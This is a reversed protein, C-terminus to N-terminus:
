LEKVKRLFKVFRYKRIYILHCIIKFKISKKCVFKNKKWNPFRKKITDVIEDVKEELVDMYRLSASYLLHEVYLYEIHELYENQNIKLIEKELYDLVFFIHDMKKSYKKNMTSGERILYYYLPKKIYKITNAFIGFLPVLALDEYIKGELFELNNDLFLKRKILRAVPGTHSLMLNDKDDDSLYSFNNFYILKEDKVKYIDSIVVDIDGDDSEDYMIQLADLEIWDDSDVFTLYHGSAKRIARNRANAQGANKQEYLKINKYKEKYEKCISLSNDSSGDNVLIIELNGYTQNVLSDLCKPLDKETNYVPVIVSIKKM